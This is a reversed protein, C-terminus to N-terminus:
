TALLQLRFVRMKFMQLTDCIMTQENTTKKRKSM